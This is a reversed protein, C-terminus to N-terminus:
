INIKIWKKISKCSQPSWSLQLPEIAQLNICNWENEYPIRWTKEWVTIKAAQPPEEGEVQLQPCCIHLVATAVNTSDRERERRTRHTRAAAQSGKQRHATPKVTATVLLKSQVKTKQQARSIELQTESASERKKVRCTDRPWDTITSPTLM